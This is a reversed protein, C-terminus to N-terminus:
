QDTNPKTTPDRWRVKIRHAKPLVVVKIVSLKDLRTPNGLFQDLRVLMAVLIQHMEKIM